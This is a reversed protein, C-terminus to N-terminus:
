FRMEKLAKNRISMHKEFEDKKMTALTMMFADIICMHSIRASVAEIPYNEEDAYVTVSFDAEKCLISEGFSSLAIIVAGSDKAHRMAEITAKTNGSHSICIAIEGKKMNMAMVNMQLIDSYAYAEIGLQSFRYAADQVIVSSTGVGFILVRSAAAIKKAIEEIGKFDLMKLTNKLTQVGSNFVNAFVVKPDATEGIAPFKEENSQKAIDGALEIKLKSFGNIGVSNCMRNVASPASECEKALATISMSIVKEPNKIIYSAIKQETATLSKYVNHLKAIIMLGGRFKNRYKLKTRIVIEIIANKLYIDVCFIIDSGSMM